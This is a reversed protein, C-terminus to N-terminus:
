PSGFLVMFMFTKFLANSIREIPLHPKDTQLPNIVEKRVIWSGFLTIPFGKRREEREREAEKKCPLKCYFLFLSPFVHSLLKEWVQIQVLVMQYFESQRAGSQLIQNQLDLTLDTFRCTWLHGPSSSSALRCNVCSNFWRLPFERRIMVNLGSVGKRGGFDLTRGGALSPKFM